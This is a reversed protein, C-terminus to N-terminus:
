KIEIWNDEVVELTQVQTLSGDLNQITYIEPGTSLVVFSENEQSSADTVQIEDSDTTHSRAIHKLLKDRRQFGASCSPCQYPLDTTKSAHVYKHM